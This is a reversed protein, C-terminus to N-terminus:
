TWLSNVNNRGSVKLRSSIHAVMARMERGGDERMVASEDDGGGLVV